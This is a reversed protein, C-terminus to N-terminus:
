PTYLNFKAGQKFLYCLIITRLCPLFALSIHHTKKKNQKTARENLINLFNLVFGFCLFYDVFLLKKQKNKSLIEFIIKEYKETILNMM